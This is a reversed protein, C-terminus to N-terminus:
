QGRAGAPLVGPTARGSSLQELPVAPQDWGLDANAKRLMEIRRQLLRVNEDDDWKPISDSSGPVSVNAALTLGGLSSDALRDRPMETELSPYTAQRKAVLGSEDSDAKDIGNPATTVPAQLAIEGENSSESWDLRTLGLVVGFLVVSAAVAYRLPYLNTSLGKILRMGGFGAPSSTGTGSDAVSALASRVAADVVAQDPRAPLRHDLVFKAEELRRSEVGDSGGVGQIGGATDAEEYLSIIQQLKKDM